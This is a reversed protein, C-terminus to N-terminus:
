NQTKLKVRGLNLLAEEHTGSQDTLALMLIGGLGSGGHRAAASLLVVCFNMM